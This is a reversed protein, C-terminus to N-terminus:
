QINDAVIAFGAQSSVTAFESRVKFSTDVDNKRGVNDYLTANNTGAADIWQNIDTFRSEGNADVAADTRAKSLVHRQLSNVASVVAQPVQLFVTQVSLYANYFPALLDLEPDFYTLIVIEYAADFYYDAVGSVQQQANAYLESITQYKSVKIAPM